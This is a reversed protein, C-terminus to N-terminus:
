IKRLICALDDIEKEHTEYSTVFRYVAKAEDYVDNVPWEYFSVGENKLIEAKTKLMLIFRENTNSPYYFQFDDHSKFVDELKKSMANAHLANEKWINKQLYPIFQAGLYRMKSTLQGAQKQKYAFDKSIGKNFFIIAEAMMCGNKTGGLSLIDIGLDKLEKPDMDLEVLANSLRAGDMHVYLNYEKAITILHSLEKKTYVTGAETSQTISLTSPKGM